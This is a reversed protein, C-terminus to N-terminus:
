SGPWTWLLPVSCPWVWQLSGTLVDIVRRYVPTRYRATSQGVETPYSKATGRRPLGAPSPRRLLKRALPSTTPLPLPDGMLVAHVARRLYAKPDVGALKSTECAPCFLAAVETGHRSKSGYHNKRGIVVGRIGRETANNDIRIRPDELFRLLGPWLAAMHAIAKGLGSQPLARTTMAWAQLRRVIDRSRENRLQRRLDDGPPGTPCLREVEYLEAIFDIAQKAEAPFFDEIEVYKRRVHAWCHALTFRGTRKQLSQNSRDGTRACCSAGSSSTSRRRSRSSVPSPRSLSAVSPAPRTPKTSSTCSKLSPSSQRSAPVTAPRRLASRRKLLGKGGEWPATFRGRELRKAFVCLGTGDWYLVKARKRTRSVFLFLDGSLVDRGLGQVVLASLSDFSKRMDAPAAYVHVAVQRTSGIV